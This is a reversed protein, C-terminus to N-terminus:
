KECSLCGKLSAIGDEYFHIPMREVESISKQFGEMMLPYAANAKEIPNEIFSM